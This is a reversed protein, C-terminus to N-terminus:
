AQLLICQAEDRRIAIARNDVKVYCGGKFPAYRVLEITTGPFVGMTILKSAIRDDTFEMLVGKENPALKM